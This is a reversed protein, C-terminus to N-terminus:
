GQDQAQCRLFSSRTANCSVFWATIYHYIAAGRKEVIWEEFVADYILVLENRIPQEKM